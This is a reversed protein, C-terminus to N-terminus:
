SNPDPQGGSIQLVCEMVVEFPLEDFNELTVQVKKDGDMGEGKIFKSKIMGTIDDAVELDKTDKAKSAQKQLTTMEGYSPANFELFCGEWGIKSLDVKKVLTFM